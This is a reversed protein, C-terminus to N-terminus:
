IRPAPLSVLLATAAIIGAGFALEVTASRKMIDTGRATGLQPTLRRWNRAGIAMTVALLLVKVILVQGYITGVLDGITGVYALALLGGAIVVVAASALAIPSFLRVMRAVDDADDGRATRMAAVVMTFLTGLWAGGGVLHVTHLGTGLTSGWPHETAHGTLPSAAAVGLGLTGLVALGLVPLRPGFWATLCAALAVATQVFWGRGWATQLLIPRAAEWTVPDPDLFSHAQGWARLLHAAVLLLSAGLATRWTATTARAALSQEDDDDNRWSPILAAFVCAGILVLAAAYAVGRGLAYLDLPLPIGSEIVDPSPRPQRTSPSITPAASWM